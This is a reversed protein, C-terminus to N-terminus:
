AQIAGKPPPPLVIYFTSGKGVESEVRLDGGHAKMIDCSLPLGLGTGSEGATGCISTKIEYKFINPLLSPPIGTGTDEVAVTGPEPLYIRVRGGERCFKIANSLLNKFVQLLLHEDAYVAAKPPVENKIEVRKGAAYNAYALGAKVAISHLDTLGASPRLQGTKIRSIDLLVDIVNLMENSADLAGTIMSRAENKGMDGHERHLIKLYGQMTTLPNKLDHSVLSVFKDKLLTAEEAADKAAKLKEEAEKRETIDRVATVRANVGRYPISRGQLEIPFLTGDKKRGIVDYVEESGRRIHDMIVARSEPPSLDVPVTGILDEPEYGFMRAFASNCDVIKGEINIVIGEFAAESLQRLRQESERLAEEAKTRESIDKAVGIFGIPEGAENKWVAGNCLHWVLAGDHRIIRVEISASGKEFVEKIGEIVLSRDEEYVFETAPREMLREPALGCFKQLTSNWKILAGNLNYVYLMDPQAEMISILEKEAKVREAIEVRLKQVASEAGDRAKRMEEALARNELALAIASQITRTNNRTIVALVLYYIALMIGVPLHEVTGMALNVGIIPFLAVVLFFQATRPMAAYAFTGGAAMGGVMLVVFMQASLSNPPYSVLPVAGWILGAVITLFSQMGGWFVTDFAERAHRRFALYFWFRLGMWFLILAFWALLHTSGIEDKLIYLLLASGVPVAAFVGILNQHFHRICERELELSSSDIPPASFAGGIGNGIGTM